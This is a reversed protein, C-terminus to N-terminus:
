LDAHGCIAVQGLQAAGAGRDHDSPLGLESVVDVTIFLKSLPRPEPTTCHARCRDGRM